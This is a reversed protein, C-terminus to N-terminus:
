APGHMCFPELTFALALGRMHFQELVYCQHVAESSPELLSVLALGQM